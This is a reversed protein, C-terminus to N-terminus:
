QQKFSGNVIDGSVQSREKAVAYGFVNQFTVSSKVMSGSNLYLYPTAIWSTITAQGFVFSSDLTVNTSTVSFSDDFKTGNIAYVPGVINAAHKLEASDSSLPGVINVTGNVTTRVLHTNGKVDLSGINADKADLAGVITVQGTVTTGDLVTPGVCNVSPITENGYHCPGVNGVALANATVLAIGGAILVSKLLAKM